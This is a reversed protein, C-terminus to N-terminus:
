RSVPANKEGDGKLEWVELGVHGLRKAAKVWVDINWFEDVSQAAFCAPV